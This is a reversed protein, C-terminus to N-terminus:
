PAQTPLETPAPNSESAGQTPASGPATGASGQEAGTSAYPSTYLTINMGLIAYPGEGESVKVADIVYTKYEKVEEIRRVFDLLAPVYGEAQVQFTEAEYVEGKEGDKSERAQLSVIRVGAASAYEYVNGQAEAAQSPSLFRAAEEGIRAEAAAMDQKLAASGIQQQAKAEVLRREAAVLRSSKQTLERSQPLLSVFVFVLYALLLVAILVIPLLAIVREKDPLPIKLNKLSDM